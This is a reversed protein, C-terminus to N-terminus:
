HCRDCCGNFTESFDYFLMIYYRRKKKVINQWVSPGEPIRIKRELKENEIDGVFKEFKVIILHNLEMLSMLCSM